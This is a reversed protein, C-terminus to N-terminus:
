NSPRKIAATGGTIQEIYKKAADDKDNARIVRVRDLHSLDQIREHPIVQVRAERTRMLGVYFKKM